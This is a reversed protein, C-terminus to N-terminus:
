TSMFAIPVTLGVAQHRLTAIKRGTQVADKVTGLADGFLTVCTDLDAVTFALGWLREGEADPIPGVLEIIVDGARFFSQTTGNRLERVRRVELGLDAYAHTTREPDDTFVVLHDLLQTTNPHEAPETDTTPALRWAAVGRDGVGTQIRLRGARIAGDPDVTFGADRWAETDGAVDLGALVTM